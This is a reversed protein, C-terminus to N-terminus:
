IMDASKKKLCVSTVYADVCDVDDNNDDATTISTVFYVKTVDCASKAKIVKLM